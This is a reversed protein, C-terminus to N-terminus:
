KSENAKVTVALIKTLELPNGMGAAAIQAVPVPAAPMAVIELSQPSDLYKTVAATIASSLEPNNLQATLFPVIAKAQNRIDDSSMNQSKAAFDVVKNTLSNDDWRLTASHFTLQQMLGLMALGQASNDAGAPETAMKAKMEQLSKIFAPTYGGLDFTLGFTGANDVSIDYKSFAIRGDNPQWSGALEFVGSINQYGLAEITAKAQPDETLSLDATFKEAAGTFTMPQGDKPETVQATLGTLSFATKDGKKVNVSALEATDYMLLNAIPDTSGAAPIKLGNLKFPSVEITLGEETKTFAETSATGIRYGGNLDTVGEFSLKGLEIPAPTGAVSLKAGELTFASADGNVATWTVNMGQQSLVDKIRNAVATADQAYVTTAATFLVTSVALKAFLHRHLSM